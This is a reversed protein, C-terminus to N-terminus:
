EPTIVFFCRPEGAMLGCRACYPEQWKQGPVVLCKDPNKGVCKSKACPAKDASCPGCFCNPAIDPMQTCACKADRDQDVYRCDDGLECGAIAGKAQCVYQPCLAKGEKACGDGCYCASDVGACLAEACRTKDAACGAGCYCKGSGKCDALFACQDDYQSFLARNDAAIGVCSAAAGADQGAGVDGAGADADTAQATAADTGVAPAADDSCAAALLSVLLALCSAAGARPRSAGLSSPESRM